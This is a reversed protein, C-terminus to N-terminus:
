PATEQDLLLKFAAAGGAGDGAPGIAVVQRGGGAVAMNKERIISLIRNGLSEGEESGRVQRLDIVMYDTTGAADLQRLSGRRCLFPLLTGPAALSADAPVAASAAAFEAAFGDPVPLTRRHLPVADFALIAALLLVGALAPRVLDGATRGRMLSLLRGLGASSAAMLFPIMMPGHPTLASRYQPDGALLGALILPLALLFRAPGLLPLFALPALLLLLFEARGPGGLLALTEGPNLVVHKLVEGMSGGLYSWAGLSPLVPSGLRPMVFSLIFLYGYFTPLFLFLGERWRRRGLSIYLGLFAAALWADECMTLAGLLFIYGGLRRKGDLLYFAILLPTVILVAPDFGHLGVARVLPHALYLAALAVAWRREGTDRLGIMYVPWSGLALAFLGIWELAMPGSWWSVVPALLTLGPSFHLGLYSEGGGLTTALFRGEMTNWLGQVAAALGFGDMSLDRYRASVEVAAVVTFFITMLALLELSRWRERSSDPDGFFRDRWVPGTGARSMLIGRLVLLALLLMAAGAVTTFSIKVPGVAVTFGGTLITLVIHCFVAGAALNVYILPPGGNGDKGNM